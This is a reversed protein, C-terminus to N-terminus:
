NPEFTGLDVSTETWGSVSVQAKIEHLNDPLIAKVTNKSAAKLDINVTKTLTERYGPATLTYTVSLTVKGSTGFAAGTRSICPIRFSSVANHGISTYSSGIERITPTIAPLSTRVSNNYGQLWGSQLSFKVTSPTTVSVSTIYASADSRATKFQIDYLWAMLHYCTISKPSGNTPATAKELYGFVYDVTGDEVDAQTLELYAGTAGFGMAHTCGLVYLNLWPFQQTSPWYRFGSQARGNADTAVAEGSMGDYVSESVAPTGTTAGLRITRNNLDTLGVAGSRSDGDESVLAVSIRAADDLARGSNGEHSYSSKDLVALDKGCSAAALSMALAILTRFRM